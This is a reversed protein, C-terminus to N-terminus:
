MVRTKKQLIAVKLIRFSDVFSANLQKFIYDKEEFSAKFRGIKKYQNNIQIFKTCRAYVVAYWNWVM